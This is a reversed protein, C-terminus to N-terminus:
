KRPQVTVLEMGMQGQIPQYQQKLILQRNKINDARYGPSGLIASSLESKYEFSLFLLCVYTCSVHCIRVVIRNIQYSEIGIAKIKPENESKETM